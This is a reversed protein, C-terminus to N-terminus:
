DERSAKGLSGCDQLNIRAEEEITVFTAATGGDIKATPKVWAGAIRYIDNTTEPPDFAKTAWWNLMSTKFSAYRGQDLGHFFDLAQDEETYRLRRIRRTLTECRVSYQAITEFCGQKISQYAKRAALDKVADVNSTTNVKHTKIIGKWLKEPDKDRHWEEYDEDQAVKDKSEVSMGYLKPRDEEM